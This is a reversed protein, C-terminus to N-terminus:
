RPIGLVRYKIGRLKLTSAGSSLIIGPELGLLELDPRTGVGPVDMVKKSPLFDM